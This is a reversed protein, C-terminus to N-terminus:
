LQFLGALYNKSSPRAIKQRLLVYSTQIFRLVDIFVHCSSCSHVLQGTGKIQDVTSHGEPVPGPVGRWGDNPTWGPGGPVAECTESGHWVKGANYCVAM